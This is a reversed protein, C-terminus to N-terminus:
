IHHKEKGENSDNSMNSLENEINEKGFDKDVKIVQNSESGMQKM